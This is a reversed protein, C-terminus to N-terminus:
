QNEKPLCISWGLVRRDFGASFLNCQYSPDESWAVSSAMRQHGQTDHISSRDTTSGSERNPQVSVVRNSRPLRTVRQGNLDFLRIHRNDHPIAIVGSHSVALKNISADTRITALASRMNRLEWVKVTRDDSGSVVKDDRAFVTSTVSRSTLSPLPRFQSMVPHIYHSWLANQINTHMYSSIM